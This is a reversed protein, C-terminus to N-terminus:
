DKYRIYRVQYRVSDPPSNESEYVPLILFRSGKDTSSICRGRPIKNAKEITLFDADIWTEKKENVEKELVKEGPKLLKSTVMYGQANPHIPKKGKINKTSVRMAKRIRIDNLFRIAEDYTSKLDAEVIYEYDEGCTKLECKTILPIQGDEVKQYAIKALNTSKKEFEKAVRDFNETTYVIPRLYGEFDKMNGKLRGALQSAESKSSVNSLIAHDMIFSPQIIPYGKEDLKPFFNDNPDYVYESDTNITIGRGICVNGTLALPYNYLKFDNYIQIIKNNFNDDKPFTEVRGDPLTLVIGNKSRGIGGNVMVVAFGISSCFETIDQHSRKTVLGPIFWKQGPSIDNKAYVNLIYKIFDLYNVNMNGPIQPKVIINDNWGHYKDSTTEQIPYVNMYGFKSFLTQPTATICFVEVNNYEEIIPYLVSDIFNEFKDAEDLWIKFKLKDQTYQGKNLDNILDYIDEMRRGNTCCIINKINNVTIARYVSDSNHYKTRSHSSLELYIEEGIKYEELDEDVRSSTQKTLLLNNDCLIFNVVDKDDDDGLDKIIEQIMIFTKGSQEPKCILVFKMWKDDSIYDSM